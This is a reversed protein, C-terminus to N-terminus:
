EFIRRLCQKCAQSKKWTQGMTPMDREPKSGAYGLFTESVLWGFILYISVFGCSLDGSVCGPESKCNIMGKQATTHDINKDIFDATIVKCVGWGVM